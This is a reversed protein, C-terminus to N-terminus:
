SAGGKGLEARIRAQRALKWRARLPLRDEALELPREAGVRLGWAITEEAERRDLGAALAAHALAVRALELDLGRAVLGGAARAVAVLVHHRTGPRAARVKDGLRELVRGLRHEGVMVPRPPPPPPPPPLLRELWPRPLEALGDAPHALWRRGPTRAGCPLTVLGSSAKCDLGPRIPRSPIRDCGAPWRFFRHEGGSPSAATATAPLPGLERELEALAAFGDPRGGTPADVDLVLVGSSPGTALALGARPWRHLWARWQERDASAAEPWAKLLPRKDAVPVCRWAAPLPRLAPGPALEPPSVQAQPVRPTGNRPQGQPEPRSDEAKSM